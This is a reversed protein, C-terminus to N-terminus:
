RARQGTRRGHDQTAPIPTIGKRTEAEVVADQLLAGIAETWEHQPAQAMFSMAIEEDCGMAEAMAGAAHRACVTAMTVTERPMGTHDPTRERLGRGDHVGELAITHTRFNLFRQGPSFSINLQNQDMFDLGLVVDYASLQKLVRVKGLEVMVGWVWLVPAGERPPETWEAKVSGDSTATAINLASRTSTAPLGLRRRFSESLSTCDHGHHYLM